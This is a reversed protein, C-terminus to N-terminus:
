AALAADTDSSLWTPDADDLTGNDLTIIKSNGTTADKLVPAPTRVVSLEGAEIANLLAEMKRRQGVRDVGIAVADFVNGYITLEENAALERGHPPLFSFTKTGGSTNKVTSYAASWDQTLSM